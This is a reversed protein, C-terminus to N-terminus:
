QKTIEMIKSYFYHDDDKLKDEDGEDMMGYFDDLKVRVVEVEDLRGADKFLKFRHNGDLIENYEDIIIPYDPDFGEELIHNSNEFSGESFDANPDLKIEEVKINRM